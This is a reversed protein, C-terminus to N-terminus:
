EKKPKILGKLGETIDKVGKDGTKLIEKGGKMLSQSMQGLQKLSSNLSGTIDDPLIGAGSEAIGASIAVIIKSVLGATTMKGDNGIDTLTIPPLKLAGGPLTLLKVNVSINTMELSDIHLKKGEAKAPQNASVNKLIQQINNTLGKQELVVKMGDLKIEKIEITDKLLSGASVAVRGDQLELFTKNQYEAPNSITLEKLGVKGGLISLSAKNVKVAVGLASSGAKEIGWKLARGGFIGAAAVAVIIVALVVIVVIRVIKGLKKM